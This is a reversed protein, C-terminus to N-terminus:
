FFLRSRSFANKLFYDAEDEGVYQGYIGVPANILSQLNLRADFGAIQNSRDEDSDVNDNGKIANWM